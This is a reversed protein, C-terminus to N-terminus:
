IIPDKPTLTETHGVIFKGSKKFDALAQRVEQLSAVDGSFAKSEIYIGKVHDNDKAKKIASLTEQLGLNESTEGTFQALLNNGAQEDMAGNLKLVLVSNKSVNTTAQGSSVMGVISMIGFFAMILGFIILGVVTALVYKFFDKM